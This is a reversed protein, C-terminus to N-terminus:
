AKKGHDAKSRYYQNILEDLERSIELLKERNTNGEDAMLQDLVKRLTNIQHKINNKNSM